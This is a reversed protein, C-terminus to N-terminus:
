NTPAPSSTGARSLLCTANADAPAGCRNARHGQPQPLPIPGSPRVVRVCKGSLRDPAGHLAPRRRRARPRRRSRRAGLVRHSCGQPRQRVDDPRHQGGRLERRYPSHRRHLPRARRRRGTEGGGTEECRAQGAFAKHRAASPKAPSPKAPSPKAPSPNPAATPATQALAPQALALALWLAVNRIVNREATLMLNCRCFQLRSDTRTLLARAGFSFM